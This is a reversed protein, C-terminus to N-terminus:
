SKKETPHQTSHEKKYAMIFKRVLPDKTDLFILKRRGEIINVIGTLKLLGWEVKEYDKKSLYPTNTILSNLSFLVDGHEIHAELVAKLVRATTNSKSRLFEFVEDVRGKRAAIRLARMRDDEYTELQKKELYFVGIIILISVIVVAPTLVYITEFLLTADNSKLELIKYVALQSICYAEVPYCIEITMFEFLLVTKMFIGNRPHALISLQIFFAFLFLCIAGVLINNIIPYLLTCAAGCASGAVVIKEGITMVAVPIKRPWIAFVGIMGLLTLISFFTLPNNGKVVTISVVEVLPTETAEFKIEVVCDQEATYKSTYTSNISVITSTNEIVITDGKHISMVYFVSREGYFMLTFRTLDYPPELYSLLGAAGIIMLIIAVHRSVIFNAM